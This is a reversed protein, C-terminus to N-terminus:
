ASWCSTWSASVVLWCRSPPFEGLLYLSRADDACSRHDFELESGHFRGGARVRATANACCM